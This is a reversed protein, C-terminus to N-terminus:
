VTASSASPLTPARVLGLRSSIVTIPTTIYHCVIVFVRLIDLFGALPKFSFPDLLLSYAFSHLVLISLHFSSVVRLNRKRPLGM